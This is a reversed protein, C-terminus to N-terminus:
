LQPRLASANKRLWLRAKKYDPTYRAVLAWFNKSHNPEFLHALEHIVVYEMVWPPTMVLRWNFSLTGRNSCSGWRTKQDRISVSKPRAQMRLAQDAVVKEIMGRSQGRLWTEVLSLTGTKSGAPAHVVLRGDVLEVRARTLRNPDAVRKIQTPVGQILIVDPPLSVRPPHKKARELQALVWQGNERLFREAETLRIGKPLTVSVKGDTVSVRLRRSRVSVRVTYPITQAGIQLAYTEIVQTLAPPEM